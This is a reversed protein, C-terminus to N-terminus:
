SVKKTEESAAGWLKKFVANTLKGKHEEQTLLYKIFENRFHLNAYQGLSLVLIRGELTSM